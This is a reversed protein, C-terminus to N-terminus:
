RSPLWGNRLYDQLLGVIGGPESSPTGSQSESSDPRTSSQWNGLGDGLPNQAQGGLYKIAPASPAGVSGSGTRLRRAFPLLEDDPGMAPTVGFIFKALFDAAQQPTFTNTMSAGHPTGIGAEVSTVRTKWPKPILGGDDPITGNLTVSPLITSVNGSLGTGLTDQSTM